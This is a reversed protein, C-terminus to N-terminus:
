PQPLNSLLVTRTPQWKGDVASDSAICIGIENRFSSFPTSTGKPTIVPRALITDGMDWNPPRHKFLPELRSKGVLIGCSEAEFCGWKAAPAFGVDRRGVQSDGGLPSSTKTLCLPTSSRTKAPLVNRPHQLDISMRTPMCFERSLKPRRIRLRAVPIWRWTQGRRRHGCIGRAHTDLAELCIRLQNLCHDTEYRRGPATDRYSQCPWLSVLLQRSHHDLLCVPKKQDRRATYDEVHSM